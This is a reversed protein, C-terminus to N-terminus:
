KEEKDEKRFGSQDPKAKRAGNPVDQNQKEQNTAKVQDDESKATGDPNLGGMVNNEEPNASAEQNYKDAGM